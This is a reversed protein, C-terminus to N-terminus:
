GGVKHSLHQLRRAYDADDTGSGATHQIVADEPIEAFGMVTGGFIAAFAQADAEKAFPVIEPTGMGGDKSSGVVFRATKADIWNKTGPESWSAGTAGMDNVWIALITHTQEPMHVYAIADRVQSFFLPAGPLGELHIQGKPGEHEVLQMQCYYGITEDTLPVPDVNQVVEERCAALCLMLALIRKM